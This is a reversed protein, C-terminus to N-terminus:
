SSNVHSVFRAGKGTLRSILAASFGRRLLMLILIYRADVVDTERNSSLILDIPIETEASVASLIKQYTETAPM